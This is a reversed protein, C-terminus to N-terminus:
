WHRRGRPQQSITVTPVIGALGEVTQVGLQELTRAPLVTIAIPTSQIDAAGTKTATVTMRESFSSVALVVDLTAAVPGVEVETTRPEFGSFAATVLYRGAPLSDLVYGGHEDTVVTRPAGLAPGAVTM